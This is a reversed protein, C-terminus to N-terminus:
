GWIKLSDRTLWEYKKNGTFEHNKLRSLLIVNGKFMFKTKGDPRIDWRESTEPTYCVGGEMIERLGKKRIVSDNNFILLKGNHVKFANYLRNVTNTEGNFLVYDYNDDGAVHLDPQFKRWKTKGLYQHFVERRNERDIDLLMILHTLGFKLWDAEIIFYELSEEYNKQM